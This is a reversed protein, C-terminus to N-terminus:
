NFSIVYNDIYSARNEVWTRLSQIDNRFDGSGRKWKEYNLEHSLEILDAYEDIYMLLEPLMSAKFSVWIQRYAEQVVPDELFRSFFQTGIGNGSLLPSSYSNFHRDQSNFSFAWDFDWIPGMMYKGDKQKHMYTSKPHNIEQNQTLNYVILYNVLADKDIYDLYNNNPFSNGFIANELLQFDAKIKDREIEADGVPYDELEPYAIMIPLNYNDSSFKWPEDFYADLELLVGGDVVNIRNKEVEKHETFMYNGMFEGNITVDVPIMTNTFPMDLMKATKSAVANLMLTEDLYNALLIWDKEASLGLLPAKTDLKLRYPKKALGWTSNGRGRIGTTGEYDDYRGAGDLKLTAKLYNEKSTIPANNETVIFLHPLGTIWTISVTYEKQSGFDSTLTYTVPNTFDVETVGSEQEIGDISVTVAETEFSAILNKHKSKVNGTFENESLVLNYDEDLISNFQQKFSFTKLVLGIDEIRDINISYDIQSGDEAKVTYILNESFNNSTVASVQEQTGILIQQGNHIFTAVLATIDIENPIHLTIKTGEIVGEVDKKLADSNLSAEIKFVQIEKSKSLRPERECSAVLFLIVLNVLLYKSKSTFYEKLIFM